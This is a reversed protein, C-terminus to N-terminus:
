LFFPIVGNLYYLDSQLDGQFFSRNTGLTIWLITTSSIKASFRKKPPSLFSPSVTERAMVLFFSKELIEFGPTGIKRFIM